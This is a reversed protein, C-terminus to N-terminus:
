EKRRSTSLLISTHTHKWTPSIRIVEISNDLRFQSQPPDNLWREKGGASLSLCHPLSASPFLKFMTDGRWQIVLVSGATKRRRRIRKHTVDAKSGTTKRKQKLDTPYGWQIAGETDAAFIVAVISLREMGVKERKKELGKRNYYNKVIAQNSFESSADNFM